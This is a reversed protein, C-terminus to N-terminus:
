KQTSAILVIIDSYMKSNGFEGGGGLEIVVKSHTNSM